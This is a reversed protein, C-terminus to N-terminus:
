WDLGNQELEYFKGVAREVEDEDTNRIRAMIEVFKPTGMLPYGDERSLEHIKYIIENYLVSLDYNSVDVNKEDGLKYLEKLARKKYPMRKLEEEEFRREIREEEERKKARDEETDVPVSVIQSFDYM